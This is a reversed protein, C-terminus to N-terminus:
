FYKRDFPQFKHDDALYVFGNYTKSGHLVSEMAQAIGQKYTQALESYSEVTEWDGNGLRVYVRKLGLFHNLKDVTEQVSKSRKKKAM